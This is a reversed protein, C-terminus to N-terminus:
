RGKLAKPKRFHYQSLEARRQKRNGDAHLLKRYEPVESLLQRGMDSPDSAFNSQSYLLLHRPRLDIPGSINQLLMEMHYSLSMENVAYGLQKLASALANCTEALGDNGLKENLDDGYRLKMTEIVRQIADETHSM